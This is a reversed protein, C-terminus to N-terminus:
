RDRLLRILQRLEVLHPRNLRLIDITYRGSITNGEWAGDAREQFHEDFDSICLDVLNIGQNQLEESPWKDRKIHNCPHCAYYMNYFDDRLAPFRSQPRFHDLEYNEEGGAYLEELLCYACRYEFDKRVFPRIASYEGSCNPRPKTRRFRAM